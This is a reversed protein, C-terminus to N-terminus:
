QDVRSLVHGTLEVRGTDYMSDQCESAGTVGILHDPESVRAQALGVTRDRGPDERCRQRGPRIGGRRDESSDDWSLSFGTSATM